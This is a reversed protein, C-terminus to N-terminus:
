KHSAQAAAIEEKSKLLARKRKDHFCGECGYEKKDKCKACYRNEIDLLQNIRSKEQKLAEKSYKQM